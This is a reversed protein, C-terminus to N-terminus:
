AFFPDFIPVNNSGLSYAMFITIQLLKPGGSGVWGCKDWIKGPRKSQKGLLQRFNPVQFKFFTFPKLHIWPLEM